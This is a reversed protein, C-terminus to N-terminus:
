LMTQRQNWGTNMQSTSCEIWKDRRTTEYVPCTVSPQPPPVTRCWPQRSHCYHLSYSSIPGIPSRVTHSMLWPGWRVWEFPGGRESLVYCIDGSQDELVRKLLALHMSIISSQPVLVVCGCCPQLTNPTSRYSTVATSVWYNQSLWILKIDVTILEAASLFHHLINSMKTLKLHKRSKHPECTFFVGLKNETQPILNIRLEMIDKVNQGSCTPSLVSSITHTSPTCTYLVLQIKCKRWLNLEVRLWCEEGAMKQCIVKNGAM